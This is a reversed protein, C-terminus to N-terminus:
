ESKEASETKKTTEKDLAKEAKEVIEAFGYILASIFRAIIILIVLATIAFFACMFLSLLSLEIVYVFLLYTGVSVFAISFFINILFLVISFRKLSESCNNFFKM